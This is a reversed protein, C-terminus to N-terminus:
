GCEVHFRRARTRSITLGMQRPTRGHTGTKSLYAILRNGKQRSVVSVETEAPVVEFRVKLDGIHVPHITALTSATAREISRKVRWCVAQAVGRWRILRMNEFADIKEILSASLQYAGVTVRSAEDEESPFSIDAPNEHGKRKRFNGSDIHNESWTM